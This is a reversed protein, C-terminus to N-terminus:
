RSGKLETFRRRVHHADRWLAAMLLDAPSPAAGDPCPRAYFVTSPDMLGLMEAVIQIKAALDEPHDTPANMVACRARDYAEFNTPQGQRLRQWTAFDAVRGFAATRGALEDRWAKAAPYYPAAVTRWAKCAHQTRLSLVYPASRIRDGPAAPLSRAESM